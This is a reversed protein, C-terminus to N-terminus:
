CALSAAAQLSDGSLRFITWEEMPRAGLNRYFTISPLNWDLVSWELRGCRREAALRAVSCLLAKGIGKGRMVPEVFLDELYLGPRALFTSFNTFFLAFGVPEGAWFALLVEAAPQNGFLHERLLDESASVEGSLKEYDALQRIFRLILPAHQEEARIIRLDPPTHAM